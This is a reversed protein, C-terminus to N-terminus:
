SPGLSGWVSLREDGGFGGCSAGSPWWLVEFGWLGSEEKMWGIDTISGAAAEFTEEWGDHEIGDMMFVGSVGFAPQYSVLM